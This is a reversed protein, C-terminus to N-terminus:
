DIIYLKLGAEERDRKEWLWLLKGNNDELKSYYAKRYKLPILGIKKLLRTEMNIFASGHKYNYGRDHKIFHIMEHVVYATLYEIGGQIYTWTPISIFRTRYYCRGCGKNNKVKINISKLEYEKCYSYIIEEAIKQLKEINM